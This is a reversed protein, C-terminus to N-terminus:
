GRPGVGVFEALVEVPEMFVNPALWIVSRPREGRGGKDTRM